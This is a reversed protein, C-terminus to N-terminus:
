PVYVPSGHVLLMGEVNEVRYEFQSVPPMETENAGCCPGLVFLTGDPNAFAVVFLYETGSIRESSLIQKIELCRLQYTCAAELLAARDEPDVDPNNQRATDYFEDDSAHREAAESYEGNHLLSFFDILTQRAHDLESPETAVPASACATIIMAVFITTFVLYNRKM